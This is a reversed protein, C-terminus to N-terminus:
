FNEVASGPTPFRRTYPDYVPAIAGGAKPQAMMGSGWVAYPSQLMAAQQAAWYQYAQQPDVGWPGLKPHQYFAPLQMAQGEVFGSEILEKPPAAYRAVVRGEKDRFVPMTIKGKKHATAILSTPDKYTLQGFGAAIEAPSLYSM